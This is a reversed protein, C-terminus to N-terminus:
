ANLTSGLHAACPRSEVQNLAFDPSVPIGSIVLKDEPVESELARVKVWENAIFFRDPEPSFWLSHVDALDTVV